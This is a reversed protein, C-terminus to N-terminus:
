SKGELRAMREGLERFAEADDARHDDMKHHLGDVSSDIKKFEDNFEGRLAERIAAIQSVISAELKAFMGRIMWAFGGISLAATLVLGCIFVLTSWEVLGTM